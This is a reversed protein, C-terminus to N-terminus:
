NPWQTASNTVCQTRLQANTKRATRAHANANVVEQSKHWDANLLHALEAAFQERVFPKEYHLLIVHM